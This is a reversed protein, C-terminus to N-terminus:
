FEYSKEFNYLRSLSKCLSLNYLSTETLTKTKLWPISASLSVCITNDEVYLASSLLQGTTKTQVWNISQM